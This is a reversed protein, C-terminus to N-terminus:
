ADAGPFGKKLARRLRVKVSAARESEQATELIVRAQERYEPHALALQHLGSYAWARVFKNDDRSCDLVFHLILDGGERPLTIFPFIQLCHLRAEWGSLRPLLGILILTQAQDLQALRNELQHKILWTAGTGLETEDALSLLRDIFDPDAAHDAHIETIAAVSKQDWERIETELSM